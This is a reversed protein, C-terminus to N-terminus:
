LAQNVKDQNKKKNILVLNRIYILSNLCSAATFVIDKRQISYALIMLTGV